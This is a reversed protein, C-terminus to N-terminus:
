RVFTMLKYPDQFPGLPNTEHKKQVIQPTGSSLKYVVRDDVMVIQPIFSWGTITRHRTFRLIDLLVKGERKTQMRGLKVEYAACRERVQLCEQVGEPLDEVTINSNAPMFAHLVERYSRITVNPNSYPDLGLEKLDATSTKYPIIAEYAKRADAFTELKSVNTEPSKPLLTACGFVSSLSFCLVWLLFQM